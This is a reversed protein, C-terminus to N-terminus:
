PIWYTEHLTARAQRHAQVIPSRGARLIAVNERLATEAWPQPQSYSGGWFPVPPLFIDGDTPDGVGIAVGAVVSLGTLACVVAARQDHDRIQEFRTILTRSPLLHILLSTLGNNATLIEWFRDSADRHLSPLNSEHILVSLFQNPFAEVIAADHIAEIHSARSISFLGAQARELVLEALLTAHHHLQQGTPSSTQGPKGRLQFVGRSLLAEAARYHPVRRLGRTLPGDLAVADLHVREGFLSDLARARAAMEVGVKRFSLTVTDTSWKLLCICTTERKSSFGVDVGLIAGHDTL